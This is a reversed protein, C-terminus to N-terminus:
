LQPIKVEKCLSSRARTYQETKTTYVPASKALYGAQNWYHSIRIDSPILSLNSAHFDSAKFVSCRQDAVIM